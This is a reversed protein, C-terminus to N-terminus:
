LVDEDLKTPGTLIDTDPCDGAVAPSVVVGAVVTVDDAGTTASGSDDVEFLLLLLLLLTLLLLLLLLLEVLLFSPLSGGHEEMELLEKRHSGSTSPSITFM